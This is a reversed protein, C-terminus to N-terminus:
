IIGKAGYNVLEERRFVCDTGRISVSDQMMHWSCVGFLGAHVGGSALVCWHLSLSM